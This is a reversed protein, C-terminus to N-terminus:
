YFVMQTKGNKGSMAWWIRGRRFQEKALDCTRPTAQSGKYERFLQFVQVKRLSGNINRGVPPAIVKFGQVIGNPDIFLDEALRHYFYYSLCKSKTLWFLSFEL